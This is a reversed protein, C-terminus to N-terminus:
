KSARVIEENVFIREEEGGGENKQLPKQVASNKVNAWSFYRVARKVMNM